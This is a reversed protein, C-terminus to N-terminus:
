PKMSSFTMQRFLTVKLSDDEGVSRVRVFRDSLHTDRPHFCPALRPFFHPNTFRSCAVILTFAHQRKDTPMSLPVYVDPQFSRFSRSSRRGHRGAPGREAKWFIPDHTVQRWVDSHDLPRRLESHHVGQAQLVCGKPSLPSHDPSSALLHTLCPEVIKLRSTLNCGPVPLFLHRAHSALCSHRTTSINRARWWAFM